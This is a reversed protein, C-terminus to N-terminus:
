TVQGPLLSGSTGSHVSPGCAYPRVAAPVAHHRVLDAGGYRHCGAHWNLIGAMWNQLEVVYGDLAARAEADLGLEDCLAPLQRSVVHEFERMRTEMLDTVIGLAQERDCSFFNQVVLVANHVAGEFEIEKRYSYVDNLLTAWDSAAAEMAKVPRSGLVEPLLTHGHRLRCLTMTFDSGFTRRRMEIYDVPEPIRHQQQNALEWLWSELMAVVAQRLGNRAEPVMPAATRAWLDALGRELPNAPTVAPAGGHLPMCALLREHCARADALGPSHGFFAPYTDDGYTGWTLWDTALDLEEATGDPHLGAACLGFDYDRLKEETWFGALPDGPAPTLYGMRHSWAVTNRRTAALHPNLRLWYPMRVAPPPLEAVQQFPVFTHARLRAPLAAVISPVVRAASTGLGLPGGLLANAAPSAGATTPKMYRSSRLHWEHGGAQWDQLGKVYAFVAAYADPGLGHELLLQPVETLATHEFQQLRATLLDGVTDAAQQTDCGLFHELVLVANALEGEKRTEREYSFLDNRLHVSDAFTDRLVRLPRGAAVVAPVEAGAAHEVLNASWPAGGVKRRMEIYEVPNAVRGDNINSLEWLSEQLLHWTSERFRERWADSMTPVTREWLDKLGAEVQNAPEPAAPEGALPMFAPLRDLYARAGEMDGTRKFRVLFDDDFFFVWVYWDTILGLEAASADPHTYACLLAYDHTDYDDEDWVGSGEIMGMGRAWAKAHRRASETHPNLRAPHPTYFRPLEFPNAM